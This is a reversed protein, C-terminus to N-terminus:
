SDVRVEVVVDGDNVCRGCSGFVFSVVGSAKCKSAGIIESLVFLASTVINVILLAENSVM